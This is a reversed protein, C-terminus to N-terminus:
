LGPWRSRIRMGVSLDPLEARNVYFIRLNDKVQYFCFDGATNELKEENLDFDVILDAYGDSMIKTKCDM